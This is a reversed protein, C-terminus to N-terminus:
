STIQDLSVSYKIYRLFPIDILYNYGNIMFGKKVIIDNGVNIYYNIGNNPLGM